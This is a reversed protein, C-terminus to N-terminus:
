NAKDCNAPFMVLVEYGGSSFVEDRVCYAQFEGRSSQIFENDQQECGRKWASYPIGM